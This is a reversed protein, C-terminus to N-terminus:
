IRELLVEDGVAGAAKRRICRWLYTTPAGTKVQAVGQVGVAQGAGAVVLDGVAMNGTQDSAVRAWARENLQVSGFDFGGNVTNIEVSYIFGEVEDGAACLEYNSASGLKVAKGRDTDHKFGAGASGGLAASIVHTRTNEVLQEFAFAETAM